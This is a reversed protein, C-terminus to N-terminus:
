KGSNVYFKFVGAAALAVVSVFASQETSPSPLAMFWSSVSAVLLVYGLVLLRPMIRWKNFDEPTM